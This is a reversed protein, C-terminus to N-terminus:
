FVINWLFYLDFPYSETYSLAMLIKNKRRFIDFLSNYDQLM